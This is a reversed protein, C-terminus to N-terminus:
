NFIRLIDDYTYGSDNYSKLDYNSIFYFFDFEPNNYNCQIVESVDVNPFVNPFRKDNKVGFYKHRTAYNSPSSFQEEKNEYRDWTVDYWVGKQYDFNWDHDNSSSICYGIDVGLTQMIMYLARAFGSCVTYKLTLGAQWTHVLWYGDLKHEEKIIEYEQRSKLHFQNDCYRVVELYPKKETVENLAKFDKGVQIYFNDYDITALRDYVYALRKDNSLARASSIIGKIEEVAKVSVFNLLDAVFGTPNEENDKILKYIDPIMDCEKKGSKPTICNYATKTLEIMHSIEKQGMIRKCNITLTKNRDNSELEAFDFISFFKIICELNVSEWGEANQYIYNSFEQESLGDFIFHIYKKVTCYYFTVGKELEIAKLEVNSDAKIKYKDKFHILLGSDDIGVLLSIIKQKFFEYMTTKNLDVVGEEIPETIEDIKIKYALKNKKANDPPTQPNPEHSTGPQGPNSPNQLFINPDNDGSPPSVEGTGENGGEAKGCIYEMGSTLLKALDIGSNPYIFDLINKLKKILEKNEEFFDGNCMSSDNGKRGDWVDGGNVGGENVPPIEPKDDSLDPEKPPSGQDNPTPTPPQAPSHSPKPDPTKEGPPNEPETSTEGTTIPETVPQFDPRPNYGSNIGQEM